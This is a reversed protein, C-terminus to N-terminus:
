APGWPLASRDQPGARILEVLQAESVPAGGWVDVGVNITRGRQRWARHVHGCLLWHGADLLRHQAFRDPGHSDGGGAYPFHSALVQHGGLVLSAPQGALASGPLVRAFGAALYREEWGAARRGHGPWCRDHNGAVLVKRGNLLGVTALSADLRGLAVDGLVWVDDSDAVRANFAEVLAANMAPVGDEGHPFPRDAYQCINKHGFHFDATFWLM